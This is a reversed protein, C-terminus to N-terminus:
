RSRRITRVRNGSNRIVNSKKVTTNSKLNRPQKINTPKNVKAPKNKIVENSKINQKVQPIVKKNNETNNTAPKIQKENPNKIQVNGNKIDKKLNNNTSEKKNVNTNVPPKKNNKDTSAKPKVIPKIVPKQYYGMPYRSSSGGFWSKIGDNIMRWKYYSWFNNLFGNTGNSFIANQKVLGSYENQISKDKSYDKHAMIATFGLFIVLFIFTYIVAKKVHKRVM